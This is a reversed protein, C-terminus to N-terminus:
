VYDGFSIMNRGSADRAVVQVYFGSGSANVDPESKYKLEVSVNTVPGGSPIPKGMLAATIKTKLAECAVKYRSLESPSITRPDALQQNPSEIESLTEKILQKLQKKTM